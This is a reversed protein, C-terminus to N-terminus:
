FEEDSDEETTELSENSSTGVVEASSDDDSTDSSSDEPEDPSHEQNNELTVEEPEQVDTSVYDSIFDIFDAKDDENALKIKNDEVLGAIYDYINESKEMTAERRSDLLNGEFEFHKDGIDLKSNKGDKEIKIDENNTVDRFEVANPSIHEIDLKPISNEDLFNNQMKEAFNLRSLADKSDSLTKGLDIKEGLEGLKAKIAEVRPDVKVDDIKADSGTKETGDKGELQKELSDIKGKLAEIEAKLSAIEEDKSKEETTVETGTEIKKDDYPSPVELHDAIEKITNKYEESGVDEINNLKDLLTSLKESNESKLENYEKPEGEFRGTQFGKEIAQGFSNEEDRAGFIAKVVEPSIEKEFDEKSEKSAIDKLLVQTVKDLAENHKVGNAKGDEDFSKEPLYDNRGVNELASIYAGLKDSEQSLKDDIKPSNDIEQKRNALQEIEAQYKNEVKPDVITSESNGKGSESTDKNKVESADEEDGLVSTDGDDVSDLVAQEEPTLEKSKTETKTKEEKSETKADETKKESEVKPEDKSKSETKDGKTSDEPKAESKLEKNTEEPKEIKEEPKKELTDVVLDAKTDAEDLKKEFETGLGSEYESHIRTDDAELASASVDRGINKALLNSEKIGEICRALSTKDTPDINSLYEAKQLRYNELVRNISDKAGTKDRLGTKVGVEFKDYGKAFLYAIYFPRTILLAVSYVLLEPLNGRKHWFASIKNERNKLMKDYISSQAELKLSEIGGVSSVLEKGANIRNEQLQNYEKLANPDNTDEVLGNKVDNYRQADYVVGSHSLAELTSIIGDVTGLEYDPKSSKANKELDTMANMLEQYRGKSIKNDLIKLGGDSSDYIKELPVNIDLYEKAFIEPVKKYDGSEITRLLASNKLNFEKWNGNLFDIKQGDFNGELKTTNGESDVEKILNRPLLFTGLEKSFFIPQMTLFTDRGELTYKM